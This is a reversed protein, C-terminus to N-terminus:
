ESGERELEERLKTLAADLDIVDDEYLAPAGYESARGAIEEVAELAQRVAPRM